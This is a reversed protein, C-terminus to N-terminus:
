LVDATAAESLKLIGAQLKILFSVGAFIKIQSNQLVKLFKKQCFVKKHKDTFKSFDKLDGRKYVVELFSSIENVLQRIEVVM